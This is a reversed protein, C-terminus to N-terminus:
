VLFPHEKQIFYELTFHTFWFWFTACSTCLSFCRKKHSNKSLYQLSIYHVDLKWCFPQSFRQFKHSCVFTRVNLRIYVSRIFVFHEINRCEMNNACKEHIWNLHSVNAVAAVNRCNNNPTQTTYSTHQKMILVHYRIRKCNKTTATTTRNAAM